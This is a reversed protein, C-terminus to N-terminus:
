QIKFHVGSINQVYWTFDHPDQTTGFMLSIINQPIALSTSTPTMPLIFIGKVPITTNFSKESGRKNTIRIELSTILKDPTNNTINLTYGFNRSLTEGKTANPGLPFQLKEVCTQRIHEKPVPISAVAKENKEVCRAVDIQDAQRLNFRATQDRWMDPFAVFIVAAIIAVLGMLAAM